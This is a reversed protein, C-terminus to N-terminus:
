LTDGEGLSLDEWHQFGYGNDFLVTVYLDLGRCHGEAYCMKGTEISYGTRNDGDVFVTNGDIKTIIGPEYYEDSCKFSIEDDVQPRDSSEPAANFIDGLVDDLDDIAYRIGVEENRTLTKTATYLLTRLNSIAQKFSEQIVERPSAKHQYAERIHKLIVDAKANTADNRCTRCGRKHDVRIYTNEKTFKHGRSCKTRM